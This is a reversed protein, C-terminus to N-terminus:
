PLVEVTLRYNVGFKVHINYWRAFDSSWGGYSDGRGVQGEFVFPGNGLETETEWDDALIDSILFRDHVSQQSYENSYSRKFRKGSKLAEILTM